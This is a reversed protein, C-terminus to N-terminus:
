EANLEMERMIQIPAHYFNSANTSLQVKYRITAAYNNRSLKGSNRIEMNNWRYMRRYLM